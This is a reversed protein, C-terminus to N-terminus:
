CHARVVEAIAEAQAQALEADQAEVMVRVVPETGSARLLVRGRDALERESREVAAVIESQELDAKGAVRVNIMKQPFLTLDATLESLSRGETVMASIVQLASVVGDGTGTAHGCIVHGSTEGGLQWGREGMEAVVYRDGVKARVLPVDLADLAKEFGLNTMLTGVVGGSFRNLSKLHNLIIFMIQDGDILAGNEDVLVVRDADGDLAIGADARRALVAEQLEKPHTSGVEKNINFGDPKVGIEFVEAGLERFVLPGVQYGAGHACDIVLRLGTLPRSGLYTSKCFEIYRGAADNIRRARGLEEAAVTLIEKDLEAEIAAELEDDLKKGDPGFFKIGNDTYAHAFLM